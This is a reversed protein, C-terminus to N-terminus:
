SNTAAPVPAFGWTVQPQGGKWKQGEGSGLSTISFFGSVNLIAQRLSMWCSNRGWVCGKWAAKPFLGLTLTDGGTSRAEEETGQRQGM